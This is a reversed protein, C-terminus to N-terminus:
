VNIELDKCIEAATNDDYSNIVNRIVWAPWRSYTTQLNRGDGANLFKIASQIQQWVWNIYEIEFIWFNSLVRYEIGYPKLRCAGAKGYMQRRTRDEDLLVSPIGLYIDLMKVLDFLEGPRLKDMDLGVHVHGSATRLGVEANPPSNVEETYADIDPDCGLQMAQKGYSRLLDLDFRYTSLSNYRLQKRALEIDVISLMSQIQSIFGSSTKTPPINFEALVNDEQVAGEAIRRPAEKTGGLHGIVPVAESNFVSGCGQVFVEPDAGLSKFVIM